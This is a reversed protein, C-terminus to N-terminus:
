AMNPSDMEQSPQTPETTKFRALQDPISSLAAKYISEMPAAVAQQYDREVQEVMKSLSSENLPQCGAGDHGHYFIERAIKIAQSESMQPVYHGLRHLVANDQFDGLTQGDYIIATSLQTASPWHREITVYRPDFADRPGPPAVAGESLDSIYWKWLAVSEQNLADDMGGTHCFASHRQGALLSPKDSPSISAMLAMYRHADYAALHEGVIKAYQELTKQREASEPEFIDGAPWRFSAKYMDAGLQHIDSLAEPGGLPASHNLQSIQTQGIRDLREIFRDLLSMWESSPLCQHMASAEMVEALDQLAVFEPPQLSKVTRM